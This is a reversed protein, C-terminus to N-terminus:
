RIPWITFWITGIAQEAAVLRACSSRGPYGRCSMVADASNARNDGLLLLKGPPVSVPGWCRTSAPSTRCDLRGPVFDFNGGLYPETRPTGNVVVRGDASCCSVVDGGIGVARKVTYTRHSPGVGIIDGLTRVTDAVGSTHPSVGDQWSRGHGFAIVSGRVVHKPDFGIRKVVVRDGTELTPEMSGSSVQTPRAVTQFVVSAVAVSIVVRLALGAPGDWLTWLRGRSPRAPEDDAAVAVTHCPAM